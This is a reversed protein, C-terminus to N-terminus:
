EWAGDRARQLAATLDPPLEEDREIREGTQPHVFRLRWAHLFLRQLGVADARRPDAGYVLDGVVPHRLASMHVRVQHTRGSELRVEVLSMGRLEERVRWHTAASRGGAVVAMRQRDHPHRGIPARVTGSPDALRGEVLALYRREIARQALARALLTHTRDDKAVVMLGSTDRDLRHVIGPRQVGAVQSLMPREALLTHVLTGTAHGPGPHVVLGAPKSLVLLWEDEYRVDLTGPEAGPPGLGGAPAARWALLEGGRFRAGKTAPRGQVTVLGALIWRIAVARSVGALGALVEDVRRGADGPEIRCQEEPACHQSSSAGVLVDEGKSVAASVAPSGSQVVIM